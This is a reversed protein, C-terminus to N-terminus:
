AVGHWYIFRCLFRSADKINCIATLFNLVDFPLYISAEYNCTFNTYPRNKQWRIHTVHSSTHKCNLTLCYWASQGKPYKYSVWSCTLEEAATRVCKYNRCKEQSSETIDSHSRCECKSYINSNVDWPLPPGTKSDCRTCNDVLIQLSNGKM